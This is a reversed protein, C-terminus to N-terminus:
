ARFATRATRQLERILRQVLRLHSAAVADLQEVVDRVSQEHGPHERLEREPAPM